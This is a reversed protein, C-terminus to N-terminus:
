GVTTIAETAPQWGRAPGAQIRDQSQLAAVDHNCPWLIKWRTIVLMAM